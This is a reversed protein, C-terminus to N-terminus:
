KTTSGPVVTTADQGTVGSRSNPTADTQNANGETANTGTTTTTNTSTTNNTAPQTTMQTEPFTTVATTTMTTPLTTANTTTNNRARTRCGSLLMAILAVACVMQITSKM